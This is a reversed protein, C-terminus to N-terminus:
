LEHNKKIRSELKKAFDRLYKFYGFANKEAFELIMHEALSLHIRRDITTEEIEPLDIGGKFAKFKVTNNGIVKEFESHSFGNRFVNNIDSLKAAEQKTILGTILCKELSKKLPMGQYSTYAGISTNKDSKFSKNYILALKILREFIHNSITISSIYNDFMLCDRNEKMLSELSCFIESDFNEYPALKEFNKEFKEIYKAKYFQQDM